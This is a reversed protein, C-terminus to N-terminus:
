SLSSIKLPFLKNSHCCNSYNDNAMKTKVAKPITLQIKLSMDGGM